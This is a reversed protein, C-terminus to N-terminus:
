GWLGIGLGLRARVGSRVRVGVRDRDWVGVRDRDWIRHKLELRDALRGIM